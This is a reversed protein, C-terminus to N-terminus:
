CPRGNPDFRLVMIILVIEAFIRCRKSRMFFFDRSSKFFFFLFLLCLLWNLSAHNNLTHPKAQNDRFGFGGGLRDITAARM